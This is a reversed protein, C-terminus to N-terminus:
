LTAGFNGLTKGLIQRADGEKGKKCASQRMHQIMEKTREHERENAELKASVASREQERMEAWQSYNGPGQRIQKQRIEVIDTVVTDLFARDHSIMLLMCTPDLKHMLFEQLWLM